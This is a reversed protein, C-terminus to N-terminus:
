GCSPTSATGMPGPDLRAEGGCSHALQDVIALGLGFGNRGPDALLARLRPRASPRCAPGQDTVHLEVWPAAEIIRVAVATGPPAVDLANSLLNDLIQELAGLPARVPTPGPEDVTVEVGRERGGAAM